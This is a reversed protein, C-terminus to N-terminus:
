ANSPVAEIRVIAQEKLRKAVFANIKWGITQRQNLADASGASGLPKIITQVDGEGKIKTIGYAEEGV